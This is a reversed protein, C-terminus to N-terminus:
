GTPESEDTYYSYEADHDAIKQRLIEELRAIELDLRQLEALEESEDDFEMENALNHEHQTTQMNAEVDAVAAIDREVQVLHDLEAALM